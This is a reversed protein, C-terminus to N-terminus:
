GLALTVLTTVKGCLVPKVKPDSCIEALSLEKRREEEMVELSPSRVGCLPRSSKGVM